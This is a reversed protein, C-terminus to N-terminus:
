GNKAGEELEKKVIEEEYKQGCHWGESFATHYRDDYAFWLFVASCLIYGVILGVLVSPIHIGFEIM